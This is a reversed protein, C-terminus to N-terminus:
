TDFLESAYEAKWEKIAPHDKLEPNRKYIDRLTIVQFETSLRKNAVIIKDITNIATAALKIEPQILFYLHIAHTPKNAIKNTATSNIYM